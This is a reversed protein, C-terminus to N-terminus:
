RSRNGRCSKRNIFNTKYDNSYHDSGISIAMIIAFISFILVTSTVSEVLESSAISEESMLKEQETSIQHAIDRIERALPMVVEVSYSEAEKPNSKMLNIVKDSELRFEENITELQTLTDKLEQRNALGYATKIHGNLDTIMQSLSESSGEEELLVGRLFSIERSASIEM